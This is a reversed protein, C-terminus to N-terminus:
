LRSLRRHRLCVKPCKTGFAPNPSAGWCANEGPGPRAFIALTAVSANWSMERQGTEIACYTQRSIGILDAIEEQTIGAKARLSILSESLLEICIHKYSRNVKWKESIM